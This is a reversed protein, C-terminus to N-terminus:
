LNTIYKLEDQISIMLAVGQPTLSYVKRDAGTRKAPISTFEINGQKQMRSIVRYLGRESIDWGSIQKLWNEIEKSWMSKTSLAKLILYSIASKKHNEIWAYAQEEVLEQEATIM